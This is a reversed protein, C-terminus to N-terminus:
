QGVGVPLVPVAGEAKIEAVVADLQEMVEPVSM